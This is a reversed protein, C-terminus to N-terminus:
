PYEVTYVFLYGITFVVPMCRDMETSILFHSFLFILLFGGDVCM